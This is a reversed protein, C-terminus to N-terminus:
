MFANMCAVYSGQPHIYLQLEKSDKMTHVLVSIRSPVDMFTTRPMINEGKPFSNFILMNRHPAWHFEKLGEIPISTRNGDMDVIMKM